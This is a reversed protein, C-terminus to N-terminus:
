ELDYLGDAGRGRGWLLFGVAFTYIDAKTMSHSEDKNWQTQSEECYVEPSRGRICSPESQGFAWTTRVCPCQSASSIKGGFLKMQCNKEEVFLFILLKFMLTLVWGCKGRGLAWLCCKKWIIPLDVNWTGLPLSVPLTLLVSFFVYNLFWEVVPPLKGWVLCSSLHERRELFQGVSLVSTSTSSFTAASFSLLCNM